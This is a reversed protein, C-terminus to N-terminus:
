GICHLTAAAPPDGVV